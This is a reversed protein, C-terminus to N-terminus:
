SVKQDPMMYHWFTRESESTALLLKQQVIKTMAAARAEGELGALRRNLENLIAEVENM